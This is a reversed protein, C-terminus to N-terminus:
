KPHLKGNGDSHILTTTKHGYIFHTKETGMYIGTCGFYFGMQRALGTTWDLSCWALKVCEDALQRKACESSGLSLHVLSHDFQGRARPLEATTIIHMGIRTLAVMGSKRVM